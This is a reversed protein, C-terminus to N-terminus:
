RLVFLQLAATDLKNGSGAAAVIVTATGTRMSTTTQILKTCSLFVCGLVYIIKTVFKYQKFM